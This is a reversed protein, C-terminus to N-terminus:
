RGTTCYCPRRPGNAICESTFPRDDNEGQRIFEARAKLKPHAQLFASTWAARIQADQGLELEAKESGFRVFDNGAAMKSAAWRALQAWFRHHYRDGVRYRWRWTSDIGMWVVQGAGFYQHVIVGFRRDNAL